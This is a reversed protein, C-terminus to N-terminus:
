GSAGDQNFEAEVRKKVPKARTLPSNVDEGNVTTMRDSPAPLTQNIICLIDATLQSALASFWRLLSAPGGFMVEADGRVMANVVRRM